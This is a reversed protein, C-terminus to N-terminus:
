RATPTTRAATAAGPAPAPAAEGPRLPQTADGLAQLLAGHLAEAPQAGAVGYRRALVFFPVADIGLARAEEEEARVAAAREDGALVRAVEGRELGAEVALRLLAAPDGIAEGECLYGRFFREAAADQLGRERALDLLRHADFTNGPRILDFRYSLGDGAAVATMRAIMAEAEATGTRYKRALREAYPIPEPAARPARPDLEFARWVVRVAGPDPLRALAAELRRKGVYCWPCAIDSWVEVTLPEM